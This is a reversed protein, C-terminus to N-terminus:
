VSRKILGGQQGQEAMVGREEEWLLRTPRRMRHQLPWLICMATPLFLRSWSPPYVAELLLSGQPAPRHCLPSSYGTDFFLPVTLLLAELHFSAGSRSKQVLRIRSQREAGGRGKGMGGGRHHVSEKVEDSDDEDEDEYEGM